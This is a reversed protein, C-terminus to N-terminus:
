RHLRSRDESNNAQAGESRRNQRGGFLGFRFVEWDCLHGPFGGGGPPWLAGPGSLTLQRKALLCALWGSLGLGAWGLLCALLCGLWCFLFFLGACGLGALWGSLCVVALQYIRPNPKHKKNNQKTNNQLINHHTLESLWVIVFLYLLYCVIVFCVFFM